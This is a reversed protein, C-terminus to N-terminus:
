SFTLTCVNGRVSRTSSAPDLIEFEAWLPYHDSIRAEQPEDRAPRTSRRRFGMPQKTGDRRRINHAALHTFCDKHHADPHTQSAWVRLRSSASRSTGTSSHPLRSSVTTVPEPGRLPRDGPAFTELPVDVTVFEAPRGSCPSPTLGALSDGRTLYEESM